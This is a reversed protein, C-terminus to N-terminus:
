VGGNLNEKVLMTAEAARLGRELDGILREVDELGPAVRFQRECLGLGEGWEKETGKGYLAKVYPLVLTRHAGLHPGIHLNVNEHFAVAAEITALEFSFVYGYGPTFEETAPRMREQYFSIFPFTLPHYVRVVSSTPDLTKAQLYFVLTSTNANLIRSRTLYDRSNKEMIEADPNCYDNEYYENFMEKLEPYRASSPNIVASGGMVDAYGSFSKTLSTVLIDVVGLLDVNCFSSITDDLILLSHYKDALARLRTVNPITLIPNTPFEGWIAQIPNGEKAAKELQKELEDLEQENGIGFHLWGPGFDQFVHLTSHFAVGIFASKTNYRKLLYRHVNYISAMGTPFLYVDEPTVKALRPPGVPARELLNAIRQRLHHHATSSPPKPAPALTPDSTSIEHLSDIHKLCEEALRSAIGTGAIQWFPLLIEMKIVPFIVMYLRIDNIDFVRIPIQEESLSDGGHKPSMAYEKCETASIPSTFIFAMQDEGAGIHKLIAAILTKIDSHLVMRPYVSKLETFLTHDKEVFRMLNSWSPMHFTIAHRTAPPIACGFPTELKASM